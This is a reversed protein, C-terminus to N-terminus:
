SNMWPDKRRYEAWHSRIHVGCSAVFRSPKRADCRPLIAWVINCKSQTNIISLKEVDPFQLHLEGHLRLFKWVVKGNPGNPTEIEKPPLPTLSFAVESDQFCTSRSGQFGADSDQCGALTSGRLRSVKGTVNCAHFGPVRSDQFKPVEFSQFRSFGVKQDLDLYSHSVRLEAHLRQLQLLSHRDLCM